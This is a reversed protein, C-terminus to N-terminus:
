HEGGHQRIGNSITVNSDADSVSRDSFQEVGAPKLCFGLDNCTDNNASSQARLVPESASLCRLTSLNESAHLSKPRLMFLLLM